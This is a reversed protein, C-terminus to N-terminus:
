DPQSERRGNPHRALLALQRLANRLEREAAELHPPVDSGRRIWEISLKTVEGLARETAALADEVQAADMDVAM